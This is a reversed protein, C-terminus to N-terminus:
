EPLLAGLVAAAQLRMRKLRAKWKVRLIPSLRKEFPM